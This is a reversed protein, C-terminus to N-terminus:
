QILTVYDNVVAAVISRITRGRFQHDHDLHQRAQRKPRRIDTASRM